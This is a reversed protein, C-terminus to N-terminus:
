GQDKTGPQSAKRPKVQIVAITFNNARYGRSAQFPLPTSSGKPFAPPHQTSKRALPSGDHGFWRAGFLALRRRVVLMQLHEQGEEFL